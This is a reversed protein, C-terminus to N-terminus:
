ADATGNAHGHPRRQGEAAEDGRLRRYGANSEIGEDAWWHKIEAELYMEALKLLVPEPASWATDFSITDDDEIRTGCANWKTGWERRCWDYWTTAGYLEYNSVYREGAEYRKRKQAKTEDFTQAMVRHFVEEPWGSGAVSNRVLEDMLALKDPALSRIPITCRETLYNEDTESGRVVNLSEPMPILKNFDFCKRGEGGLTFLPKNAIGVMRITNRVWNPM